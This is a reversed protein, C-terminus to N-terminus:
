TIHDAMWATVTEAVLQEGGVYYHGGADLIEVVVSHPSREALEEAPYLDAPEESSRVFLVE